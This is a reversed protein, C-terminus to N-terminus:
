LAAVKPRSLKQMVQDRPGDAVIKGRDFVRSLPPALAPLELM